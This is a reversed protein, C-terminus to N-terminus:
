GTANKWCPFCGCCMRICPNKKRYKIATKFSENVCLLYEHTSLVNHEIHNLMPGQEEVMMALNLFLAHVDRLRAELEILEKHREKIQKFACRATMGEPNLDQRFAGWGGEAVMQDVEDTTVNRGLIEAQRQFRQRCCDRQEQEAANYEAMAQRLAHSIASYQARAIRVVAAMPGHREELDQRRQDYATLRRVLGEARIKVDGGIANSSRYITSLRRVTQTAHSTQKRLREVDLRLEGIERRMAQAEKLLEEMDSDEEFVVAQPKLDGEDADDDSDSAAAWEGESGEEQIVELDELRDRM